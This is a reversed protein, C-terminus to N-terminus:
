ISGKKEIEYAELSAHDDGSVSFGGFNVVAV